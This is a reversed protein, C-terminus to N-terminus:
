NSALCIFKCSMKYFSYSIFYQVSGHFVLLYLIWNTFYITTLLIRYWFLCGSDTFHCWINVSLFTMVCTVILWTGTVYDYSLSYRGPTLSVLAGNTCKEMLLIKSRAFIRIQSKLWMWIQSTGSCSLQPSVQWIHAQYKIALTRIWLASLKPFYRFPPFQNLLGVGASCCLIVFCIGHNYWM